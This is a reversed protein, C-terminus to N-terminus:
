RPGRSEGFIWSLWGWRDPPEDPLGHLAALQARSQEAYSTDAFNKALQQYYYRASGNFGLKRYYEATEFDRRAREERIERRTQELRTREEGLERGYLRLTDDVIKEAAKLPAADYQPGQYARLHSQLALLHAQRQHESKPYETRVLDYHYAADEFRNNLFHANAAAMVADDALPGTPDNLRISEYVAVANGQPDLWPRTKDTVNPAYDYVVQSVEDWYRGVSFHRAMIKDLHRSNEYKKLLRTYTNSARYYQDSLFYSEGAMFLADEELPSDPWRDAATEFKKAAEAYQQQAFLAEAEGYATRAVNENPDRGILKRFSRELNNPKLAEGTQELVGKKPEDVDNISVGPAPAEAGAAYGAPVVGPSPAQAVAPPPAEAAAFPNRLGGPSQCGLPILAAGLALWWGRGLRRM